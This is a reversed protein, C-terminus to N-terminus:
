FYFKGSTERLNQRFITDFNAPIKTRKDNNEILEHVTKRKGPSVAISQRKNQSVPNANGEAIKQLGDVIDEVHEDLCLETTNTKSQFFFIMM